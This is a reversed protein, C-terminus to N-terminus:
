AGVVLDGSRIAVPGMGNEVWLAGDPALDRIVGVSVGDVRAPAGRGFLLSRCRRLTESRGAGTELSSLARGAADVAGDELERLPPARGILEELSVARRRFRPPLSPRALAVNLGIGVLSLFGSAPRVVRDVLIGGLKRAAGPPRDEVLDNPWKLRLRAGYEDRLFEAIGRGIALPPWTRASAPSDPALFSVYLGGEPSAWRHDLRGRGRTQRRAVVRTGIPFGRRVLERAADHTSPLSAFELREPV